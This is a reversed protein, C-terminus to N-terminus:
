HGTGSHRPARSVVKGRKNKTLHEKKLNTNTQVQRDNYVVEKARSGSAVGKKSAAKSEVGRLLAMGESLTPVAAVLTMDEACSVASAM